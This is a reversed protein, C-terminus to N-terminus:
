QVVPLPVDLRRRSAILGIRLEVALGAPYEAVFEGHQNALTEANQRAVFLETNVAEWRKRELDFQTASMVVAFARGHKQIMVPSAQAEDLLKGLENKADRASYTQM